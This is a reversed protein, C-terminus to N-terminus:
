FGALSNHPSPNNGRRTPAAIRVLASAGDKAPAREESPFLEEARATLVLPYHVRTRGPAVFIERPGTSGDRGPLLYCFDRM